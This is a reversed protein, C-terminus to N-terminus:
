GLYPLCPAQGLRSPLTRGIKEGLWHNLQFLGNLDIGTKLGMGQFMYVLDETAVNGTAAPAYPCGGLGGLSSDFTRVGLQYSVLANAVAMGRTDHFHCAIKELGVKRKIKKLLIQVQHPQAVGITDGISVQYVGLKLMRETLKVVQDPDVQGEFPCGFCTSLYGRVKLKHKKALKMVPLFRQFSEEISCNINRQSFAETSSAFIAVERIGSQVADMMGKENPVLASFFLKKKDLAQQYKKQVSQILEQSGAMAPVWKPHVFAGVEIRQVGASILRDAFEKKTQLDLIQKENQLGDRMGVEVIQIDLKM